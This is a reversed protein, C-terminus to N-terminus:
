RLIITMAIAVVLMLLTLIGTGVFAAVLISQIGSSSRPKVVKNKKDLM